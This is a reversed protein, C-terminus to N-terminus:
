LIRVIRKDVDEDYEDDMFLVPAGDVEPLCRLVRCSASM